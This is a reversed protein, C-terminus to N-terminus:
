IILEHVDLVCDSLKEQASTNSEVRGNSIFVLNLIGLLSCIDICIGHIAVKRSKKKTPLVLKKFCFIQAGRDIASIIRNQM